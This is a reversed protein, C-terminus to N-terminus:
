RFLPISDKDEDDAGRAMFPIGFSPKINKTVYEIGLGLPSNKVPNLWTGPKTLDLRETPQIKWAAERNQLAKLTPLYKHFQANFEALAKDDVNNLFDSGIQSLLAYAKQQSSNLESYEKNGVKGKAAWVGRRAILDRLTSPDVNGPDIGQIQPISPVSIDELERQIIEVIARKEDENYLKSRLVEQIKPLAADHLSPGKLMFKDEPLSQHREFLPVLEPHMSGALDMVEKPTLNQNRLQDFMAGVEAQRTDEPMAKFVDGIEQKIEESTRKRGASKRELEDLVADRGEGIASVKKELGELIAENGGFLPVYGEELLLEMDAPSTSNQVSSPIGLRKQLTRKARDSLWPFVKVGAGGLVTGAGAMGAAEGTGIDKHTAWEEAATAANNIAPKAVYKSIMEGVKPIAAVVKPAKLEPQLWTVPDIGVEAVFNGFKGLTSSTDVPPETFGEELGQLAGEKAMSLKQGEPAWYLGGVASGAGKAAGEVANSIFYSADSLWDFPNVTGEGTKAFSESAAPFRTKMWGPLEATRAEEVKQQTNGAQTYLENARLLKEYLAIDEEPLQALEDESLANYADLLEQNEKSLM